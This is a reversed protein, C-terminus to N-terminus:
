IIGVVDHFIVGYPMFRLTQFFVRLEGHISTYCSKANDNKRQLYKSLFIVISNKHKIISVTVRVLYVSM